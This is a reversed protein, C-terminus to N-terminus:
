SDFILEDAFDPLTAATRHSKKRPVHPNDHAEAWADDGDGTPEAHGCAGSECDKVRRATEDDVAAVFLQRAQEAATRPWAWTQEDVLRAARFALESRDTVNQSDVFEAAAIRILASTKSSGSNPQVAPTQAPLQTQQQGGGAPNTPVNPSTAFQDNPSTAYQAFQDAIMEGADGLSGAWGDGGSGFLPPAPPQYGDGGNGFLPNASPATYYGGGGGSSGGGAPNTPADKFSSYDGQDEAIRLSSYKRAMDVEHNYDGCVPCFGGQAQFEAADSEHGCSPCDIGEDM